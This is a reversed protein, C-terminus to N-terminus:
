VQNFVKASSIRFLTQSLIKLSSGTWPNPVSVDAASTMVTADLKPAGTLVVCVIEEEIRPTPADFLSEATRQPTAKLM